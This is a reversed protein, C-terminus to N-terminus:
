KLYRWPERDTEHGSPDFLVYRGACVRPSDRLVALNSPSIDDVEEKDVRGKLNLPIGCRPCWRDIQERFDALPRRWCEPEIPLGGPGDFVMDFAGAVECFFHGKPTITGCWLRQLWCDDILRAREAPDAVEDTVAVLVPSHLCRRDHRNNNVYGFVDEIVEAHKTHRWDLGTWLGRHQRDPVKEAIIAALTAFQPHLLPEGGIMAVVKFPALDPRPPSETPFDKIADVARAFYDVTMDFRSAAHGILRTCNSCARTCRNTVDIPMTWQNQPDIM